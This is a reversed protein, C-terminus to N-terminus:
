LTKRVSVHAGLEECWIYKKIESFIWYVYPPKSPVSVELLPCYIVYYLTIIKEDLTRGNLLMELIGSASM